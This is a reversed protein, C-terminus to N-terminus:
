DSDFHYVLHGYHAVFTTEECLFVERGDVVGVKM